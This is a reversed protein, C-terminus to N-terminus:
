SCGTGGGGRRGGGTIVLKPQVATNKGVASGSEITRRGVHSVSNDNANSVFLYNGNKSLCIENPNDGVSISDVIKQQATNYVLIRDGGWLSIYLEKKDPSLMCTFAEAGLPLTSRVKRKTLDMVYLSNNEKTVVYMTKKADDIDLGAPSIKVPWKAGLTMSDKLVLKNNVIAYKLIWNDNGGSAYLYKENNSFKLGYWSKPIEVNDLIIDNKPDILQISQTSQGNNTVAMLKKTSSIAINLPLDGLPLSKGAPTLSWGNPLTIRNKQGQTKTQAQIQFLYFFLCTITLIHKM